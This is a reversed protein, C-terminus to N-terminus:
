VHGWALDININKISNDFTRSNFFYVENDKFYNRITESISEKRELDHIGFAIVEVNSENIADVIHKDASEDLSHGFITLHGDIKRLSKYCFRLYKNSEIQDSKDEWNGESVYLPINNNEM